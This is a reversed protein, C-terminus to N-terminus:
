IIGFQQYLKRLTEVQQNFSYHKKVFDPGQHSLRAYLQDKTLLTTIAQALAQSTQEPVKIGTQMHIVTEPLGNQNFAIVPIGAAAAEANIMELPAKALCPNVVIDWHKLHSFNHVHGLFSVCNDIELQKSLNKLFNTRPGTGAIEVRFKPVNHKHILLAIAELLLHVGKESVLRGMFGITAPRNITPAHQFSPGYQVGPNIIVSIPNFKAVLRQYYASNCIIASAQQLTKAIIGYVAIKKLKLPIFKLRYHILEHYSARVEVLSPINLLKGILVAAPGSYLPSEAEISRVKLKKALLLGKIFLPIFALYYPWPPLLHVIIKEELHTQNLRKTAFPKGSRALVHVEDIENLAARLRLEKGAITGTDFNRPLPNENLFLIRNKAVM